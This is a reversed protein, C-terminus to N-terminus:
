QGNPGYSSGFTQILRGGVRDPLRPAPRVAPGVGQVRRRSGPEVLQRRIRRKAAIEDLARKPDWLAIHAANAVSPYVDGTMVDLVMGGHPADPGILAQKARGGPDIWRWPGATARAAVREEDDYRARLFAILEDSRGM